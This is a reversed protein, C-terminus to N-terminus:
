VPASTFNQITNAGGSGKKSVFKLQWAVLSAYGEVEGLKYRMDLEVLELYHRELHKFGLRRAASQERARAFPPLSIGVPQDESALLLLQRLWSALYGLTQLPHDGKEELSVTLKLSLDPRRSLLAQGLEYIKAEPASAILEAPNAGARIAVELKDLESAAQWPDAEAVQGLLTILTPPLRLGRKNLESRLWVTRGGKAPLPFERVEVSPLALKLTKRGSLPELILVSTSDDLEAMATKLAASEAKDLYNLCSELVVLRKGAFLSRAQLVALVDAWVAESGLRVLDGEPVSQHFKATITKAALSIGFADGGTLIRRLAM